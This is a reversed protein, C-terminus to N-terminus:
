NIQKIYLLTYILGLREIQGVGPTGENTTQTHTETEAKHILKDRSNKRIGCIYM